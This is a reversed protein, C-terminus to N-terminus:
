AWATPTSTAATGYMGAALAYDSNDALNRQMLFNLPEAFYTRERTGGVPPVNNLEDVYKALAIVNSQARRDYFGDAIERKLAATTKQETAADRSRRAQAILLEAAMANLRTHYTDGLGTSWGTPHLLELQALSARALLPDELVARGSPDSSVLTAILLIDKTTGFAYGPAEPWLATGRDFGEKIVHTIGKQAPLRANLIVDVYYPRGKGDAYRVNDELALGGYAIIRAQNLNWNGESSGGEVVRDIIRKLQTQILGVEKWEYLPFLIDRQKKIQVRDVYLLIGINKERAYRIM